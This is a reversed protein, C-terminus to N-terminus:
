CCIQNPIKTPHSRLTQSSQSSHCCLGDDLDDSRRRRALAEDFTEIEDEDIDGGGINKVVSDDGPDM